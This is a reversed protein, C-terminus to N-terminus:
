TEINNLRTLKDKRNSYFIILMGFGEGKKLESTVFEITISDGMKELWKNVTVDFNEPYDLAFSKIKM